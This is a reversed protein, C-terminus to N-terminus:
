RARLDACRIVVAGPPYIPVRAERTGIQACAAAAKQLGASWEPSHSRATVVRYNAGCVVVLVTAAAAAIGRAPGSGAAATLDSVAVLGAALLLLVPAISYRPPVVGAYLTEASAYLGVSMAALVTVLWLRVVDRRRWVLVALTVLVVVAVLEALRAASSTTSGVSRGGFMGAAVVHVVYHAATRVPAPSLTVHQPETQGVLVRADRFRVVTVAQVVACGVFVVPVVRDRWSRLALIRLLAVPLLLLVLPDSLAALGAVASATVIRWTEEARCLLLLAAAAALFWHLNAVNAIAEGQAVPLLVFAAALLVRAPRGPLLTRAADYVVVAIGAVVLASAVAFAAAAWSLPMAAVPAAVLRPVVHLYGAYPHVLAHLFSQSRAQALFIAGDESYLSDFPSVGPQRLLVAVCGLLVAGAAAVLHWSTLPVARAPPFLQASVRPRWGSVVAEHKRVPTVLVTM